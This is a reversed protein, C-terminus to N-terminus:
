RECGRINDNGPGGACVDSGPGGRIRDPGKGGSIVDDNKGGRIEDRGGAVKMTDNGSNGVLLDNGTFGQITDNGSGGHGEDNGAGGRLVDFGAQGRMVDDGANGRLDDNQNGGRLEDNGGNGRLEDKGANGKIEDNGDGGRLSDNGSGGVILDDGGLGDILDDGGLGCIVDDGETGQITDNGQTGVIVQGGGPRATRSDESHGECPGSTVPPGDLEDSEDNDSESSCGDDAPFDIDGDGDNDVGDSCEANETNETTDEASTCGADNPFDIDGDGDNDVGDNCEVDGETDDEANTCGQDDPFDVDGDGDNDVGDNCEAAGETDDEANTCGQDDPFDVDGDGDNDVGDNCETEPETWTVTVSDACVGASSGSPDGAASDCEDAHSPENGELDDTITGTVTQQGPQNSTATTSVQGNADTVGTKPNVTGVGSSSFTVREGQVPQGGVDRVTCTIVHGDGTENEAAEPECDITRGDGTWTKTVVDTGDNDVESPTENADSEDAANNGSDVWARITATGTQGESTYIVSCKGDGDPGDATTCTKDPNARDANNDPDNVTPTENEFDVIAGYFPRGQQDLVTCTIEHESGTGEAPNNGTEPECDLRAQAANQEYWTKTVLDNPENEQFTDDNTGEDFWVRIQDTGEGGVGEYTWSCTHGGEPNSDTICEYDSTSRNIPLPDGDNSNPGEEINFNVEVGPDSTAATVTHESGVPNTDENPSADIEVFEWTKTVVDTNDSDNDPANEGADATGVWARIIATGAQGESTYTVSCTGDGDPEPSTTCTKDPNSRDANDDPDNVSPTENEFRVQAGLFPRATGSQNETVTCTITHSSDPGFTPNTASEPECNLNARSADQAYWTKQVFDNPEGTDYRDNNSSGTDIWVRINDTGPGGDGEYTWSCSYENQGSTANQRAPATSTTCEYDSDEVSRPDNTPPEAEQNPGSEINFNVEVGPATTYATITHNSGVPNTDTTPEADVAAPAYWEKLVVDTNDPESKLGPQTTSDQGEAADSDDSSNRNDLDVWARITAVGTQGESPYTVSCKGDAGTTCTNDPSTRSSNTDPDNVNGDSENEFDINAGALPLKGNAESSTVTCTITHSSEAGSSPNRDTEPECDLIPNQEWTKTVWDTVEGSDYDDDGGVPSIEEDIWAQIHDTEQGEDSNDDTYTVSCSYRNQSDPSAGTTCEFDSSTRDTVLAANDNTNPSDDPNETTVDDCQEQQNEPSCTINFNVEIGPASTYATLTHASRPANVDSEPVVDLTSHNAAAPGVLPVALAILTLLATLLAAARNQSSRRKM